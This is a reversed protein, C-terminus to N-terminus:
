IGHWVAIQRNTLEGSNRLFYQYTEKAALKKLSFPIVLNDLHEFLSGHSEVIAMNWKDLAKEIFFRQYRTLPFESTALFAERDDIGVL